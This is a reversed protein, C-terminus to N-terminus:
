FHIGYSFGFNTDTKGQTRRQYSAFGTIDQKATLQLRFGGGYSQSAFRGIQDVQAFDETGAAFSLNGNLRERAWRGLPFGIRAAGSPRWETGTGSFASRAGTAALTLTWAEPFYVIVTSNLTLIRAAAYWYWHQGYDLEVGRVVGAKGVKWGRDVDFFAECKPIVGNDHGTAGGVTLAVWGPVRGTVGGVFKGAGVGDRQYTNGGFSTTWRPNWRSTLSVWEDHNPGAFNLLDNLEGLRWEHKTGEESSKMGVLAEGSGPDLALATQFEQRAKGAEGGALLARGRAAHLDARQPDLELAKDMACLAESNRGERWYVTALEMWIDPDKRSVKLIKQYEAEAEALRGSWTLIRARWAWLDADQPSGAIQQDVLWLAASWDQSEAYKRVRTQWEPVGDQSAAVRALAFPNVVVVLLLAACIRLGGPHFTARKKCCAARQLCAVM